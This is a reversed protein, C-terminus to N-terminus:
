PCRFTRPSRLVVKYHNITLRFGDKTVTFHHNTTLWFGDIYDKHSFHRQPWSAKTASHNTTLWFGDIHDKLSFHRKYSAQKHPPIAQIASNGTHSSTGKHSHTCSLKTSLQAPPSYFVQSPSLHNKESYFPIPANKVNVAAGPLGVPAYTLEYLIVVEEV